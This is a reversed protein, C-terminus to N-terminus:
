VPFSVMFDRRGIANRSIREGHWGEREACGRKEGTAARTVM